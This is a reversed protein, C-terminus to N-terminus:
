PSRNNFFFVCSKKKKGRFIERGWVYMGTLSHSKMNRLYNNRQAKVWRM